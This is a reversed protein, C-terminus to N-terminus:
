YCPLSHLRLNKKEFSNKLKYLTNFHKRPDILCWKTNPFMKCLLLINDGRASGAYIIHVDKDDPEIVKIFFMLTVLFMKLQGWHVITKPKPLTEEYKLKHEINVIPNNLLNNRHDLLTIQQKPEDM